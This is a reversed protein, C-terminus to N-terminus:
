KADEMSGLILLAYLAFLISFVALLNEVFDRRDHKWYSKLESFFEGIGM